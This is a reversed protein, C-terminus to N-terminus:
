AALIERKPKQYQVTKFISDLELGLKDALKGLKETATEVFIEDSMSTLNIHFDQRDGLQELYAVEDPIHGKDRAWQYIPTGPLPLLFGVSPFINCEDCVDMTMQITEPTEQPYGLVVSTRPPVGGAWLAKSQEKFQEVTIKKNMAKLIEPSGNELSFAINECGLAKMEKILSVDAKNFLGARCPADWGFKFDLDAMQDVLARVAKTNPFTLEDWFMIYTAKFEEHLRKIENVISCESYRRYAKGKFAHYCFTCSYPCGRGTNLPYPAVSQSFFANSNVMSYSNYKELNFINWDPFGFSDLKPEVERKESFVVKNNDKYAIGAIAGVHNNKDLAKLLEVMTVDGEGLVAIDVMTNMLLLEPISTAVSNGAVITAQPNIRKITSSLQRAFKFGTVICGFAYVDYTKRELMAELDEFSLLDVDMDILDFEFGAKKVATMVYALGVPLLRRKADPRISLNIFLIKM